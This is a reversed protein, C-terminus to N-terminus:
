GAVLEWGDGRRRVTLPQLIGLERISSALEELGAPDFVQRPQNPNPRISEIPLFLLKGGDFLGTKRLFPMEAVRESDPHGYFVM